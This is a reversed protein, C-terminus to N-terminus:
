RLNFEPSMALLQVMARVRDQLGEAAGYDPAAKTPKPPANM